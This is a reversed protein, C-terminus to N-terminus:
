GDVNTPVMSGMDVGLVSHGGLRVGKIGSKRAYLKYQDMCHDYFQQRSLMKGGTMFNYHGALRSSKLLWGQAVGYYLDYRPNWPAVGTCSWTAAGDAVTAGIVVPWVPEAAGSVGGVTCTYYFGNRTIPLLPDSYHAVPVIQDGPVRLIAAAWENFNDPPIGFLDVRRTMQMLVDIDAPDTLVPESASDTLLKLRTRVQALTVLM